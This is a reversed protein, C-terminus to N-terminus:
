RSHQRNVQAEAELWDDVDSGAASGRREYAEYAARRVAEERSSEETSSTASGSAPDSPETGSPNISNTAVQQEAEGPYGHAKNAERGMRSGQAPSDQGVARNQDINVPSMPKQQANNTM